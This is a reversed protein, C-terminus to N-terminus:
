QPERWFNGSSKGAPSRRTGVLFHIYPVDRQDNTNWHMDVLRVQEFIKSKYVKSLLSAVSNGSPFLARVIVYRCHCEVVVCAGHRELDSKIQEIFQGVLLYWKFEDRKHLGGPHTAILPFGGLKASLSLTPSAM